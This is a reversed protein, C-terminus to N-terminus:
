KTMTTEIEIAMTGNVTAVPRQIMAIIGRGIMTGIIDAIMVKGLTEAVGALLFQTPVPAVAVVEWDGTAAVMAVGSESVM